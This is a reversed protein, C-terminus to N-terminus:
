IKVQTVSASRLWGYTLPLPRSAKPRRTPSSTVVSPQLSSWFNPMALPYTSRSDGVRSTDLQGNSDCRPPKHSHCGM